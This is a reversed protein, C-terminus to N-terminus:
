VKWPAITTAMASEEDGDNIRDEPVDLVPLKLSEGGDFVIMGCYDPNADMLDGAYKEDGYIELAVGDFSDNAACRYELGSYEIM